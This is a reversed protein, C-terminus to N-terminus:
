PALHLALRPNWKVTCECNLPAVAMMQMAMM